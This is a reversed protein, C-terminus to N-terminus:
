GRFEVARIPVNYMLSNEYNGSNHFFSPLESWVLGSKCINIARAESQPELLSFQSDAYESM